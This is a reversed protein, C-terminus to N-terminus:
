SSATAAARACCTRAVGVAQAHGRSAADGAPEGRAGTLQALQSNGLVLVKFLFKRDFTHDEVPRRRRVAEAPVRVAVRPRGRRGTFRRGAVDGSGGLKAELADILATASQRSPKLYEGYRGVEAVAADLAPFSAASARATALAEPLKWRDDGAVDAVLGADKLAELGAAVAIQTAKGM